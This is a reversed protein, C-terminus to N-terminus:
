SYFRKEFRQCFEVLNIYQRALHNFENDLETCIFQALISYATADFSCPKDGSFYDQDALLTSLASFSRDAIQLVEDKSHRGTGQNYLNKIVTKQIVKPLFWKLPAPLHGFFGEKVVQWSGELEWRSYVLSWYLSEDIAKSMLEFHAAQQETLHHDIELSYDHKLTKLIFYSDGLKNGDVEIYPLKNKPSTKIHNFDAEFKFPLEVMRLFADVKLVFPSPDLVGFNKGFGYLTIM